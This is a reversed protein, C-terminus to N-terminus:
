DVVGFCTFDFFWASFWASDPDPLFDVGYNNSWNLIGYYDFIKGRFINQKGAAEEARRDNPKGVRKWCVNVEKEETLIIIWDQINIVPMYLLM